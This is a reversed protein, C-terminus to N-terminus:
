LPKFHVALGGGPALPVELVDGRRVTQEAIELATPQTEWHADPGDAYMVAVYAEGEALFDLSLKLRRPVEGTIAGLFWDGTAKDRRAVTIYEGIEGELVRSESWDVGVARIFGMGPQNELHEPLDAVMQLPSYFVVYLALEHALTHKVRNEPKFPDLSLNFVGPTYDMPGALMRTFPLILTHETPNGGEDSWANFEQGRMGERTMMNPWTRRIGTAKIPEHADIMIGYRAATEVVRRYHNVMYQGHHYEGRPIIPGVYGTKVARIGLDRYLQFATDLQQDYTTVAASTEHHGVIEVGKERGYAVVGELDFDPYPTVFDFVGERDDFGIWHEWGTNWGEILLAPIGNDACFDIYRKANETTAGHRGSAMDWTSKGLHMEWWIGMYKMPQIWDATDLPSPENLNLILNSEILAGAREAIQLTRWPSTLPLSAKVKSGDAAGVLESELRLRQTDVKLTMGAYDTLAAEHFSLYLGDATKMTVPTNVANEPIYTQALNPHNRKALANVQSVLTQNYLHEYIDWDGPIWWCRHDGTLQFRSHEDMLVVEEVEEQEPLIYRFAVGDDYARFYWHWQRNPAQKEELILLFENYHNRMVAAEGWHPEWDEELTHREAHVLRFGEKMEPWNRFTLGLTSTDIVVRGDHAVRYAPQGKETLLFALNTRGDPSRVEMFPGESACASLVLALSVYLLSNKLMTCPYILGPM